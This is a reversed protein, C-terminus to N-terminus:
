VVSKRDITAALVGLFGGHFSMGGEWVAFIRLPNELYYTLNYFLIYGIRGGLIVGMAGYFILDAANDQTLPLKKRTIESRIILYSAVFGLIYMLGYWRFQLPGITLFVPDLAPFQM